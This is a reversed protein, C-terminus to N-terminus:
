RDRRRISWLGAGASAPAKGSTSHRHCTQQGTKNNNDPPCKPILGKFEELNFRRDPHLEVLRSSPRSDYKLNPFGPLRLVRARDTAAPDAGLAAALGDEIQEVLRLDYAAESLFWYVQNKGPSTEVIASPSPVIEPWPVPSSRDIDAWLCDSRSVDEKRGRLRVRPCVGFHINFNGILQLPVVQQWHQNRLDGVRFFYQQAKGGNPPIARVELYQDAPAHMFLTQLLEEAPTHPKELGSSYEWTRDQQQAIVM